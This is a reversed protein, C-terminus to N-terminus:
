AKPYLGPFRRKARAKRLADLRVHTNERNVFGFGDVISQWNMQIIRVQDALSLVDEGHCGFLDRIIAADYWEDPRAGDAVEVYWIGRDSVIRVSIDLNGYLIMKDSFVPQEERRRLILGNKGLFAEFDAIEKPM